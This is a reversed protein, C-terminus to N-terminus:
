QSVSTLRDMERKNTELKEHLEAVQDREESYQKEQEELTEEHIIHIGETKDQGVEDENRKGIIVSIRDILNNDEIKEMKEVSRM